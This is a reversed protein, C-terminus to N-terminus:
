LFLVVILLAYSAYEFFIVISGFVSGFRAGYLKRSRSFKVNALITLTFWLLSLGIFLVSLKTYDKLLTLFNRDLSKLAPLLKLYPFLAFLVTITALILIVWGGRARKEEYEM